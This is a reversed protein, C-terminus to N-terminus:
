PLEQSMRYIENSIDEDLFVTATKLHKIRNALRVAYVKNMENVLAIVDKQDGPIFKVILSVLGFWLKRFFGRFPLWFFLTDFAGLFHKVYGTGSIFWSRADQQVTRLESESLNMKKSAAKMVVDIKPEILKVPITNLVCYKVIEVWFIEDEPRQSGTRKSIEILFDEYPLLVDTYEQVLPQFKESAQIFVKGSKILKILKDPEPKARHFSVINM